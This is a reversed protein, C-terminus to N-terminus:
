KQTGSFNTDRPNMKRTNPIATALELLIIISFDSMTITKKNANKFM